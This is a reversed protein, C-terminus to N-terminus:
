DNHNEEGPKITVKKYLEGLIPDYEHRRILKVGKAATIEEIKKEVISKVVTVYMLRTDLRYYTDKRIREYLEGIIPLNLLITSFDPVKITKTPKNADANALSTTTVPQPRFLWYVLAIIAVLGIITLAESGAQLWAFYIACLAAFFLFVALWGLRPKEVIRLSFFFVRGFPAACIDFALRERALRLYVRKDSLMGGEHFDVRSITLGPVQRAILEKEVEAYFEQTAFLFKDV